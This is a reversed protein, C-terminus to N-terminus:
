WCNGSEFGHRSAASAMALVSPAPDERMCTISVIGCGRGGRADGGVCGGDVEVEAFRPPAVEFRARLLPNVPVLLLPLPTPLPVIGHLHIQFPSRFIMGLAIEPLHATSPAACGLESYKVKNKAPPDCIVVADFQVLPTGVMVSQADVPGADPLAFLIRYTRRKECM